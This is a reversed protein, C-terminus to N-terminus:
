PIINVKFFNNKNNSLLKPFISSVDNLSITHLWGDINIKGEELWKLTDVYDNLEFNCSSTIIKESAITLPNFKMEEDHIAINVYTGSKALLKTGLEFTESTGVTDFVSFPLTNSTNINIIELIKKFDLDKNNLTLDAGVNKSLDLSIESQDIVLVKGAGLIKSIQVISNGVPGSGIILVPMDKKINGKRSVHCGVALLDMMSAKDFSLNNSIEFATNAWAPVYEAYAGPFYDRDGWGQGHGIHITNPCLHDMENMCLDCKECVKSCIPAVRKGLMNKYKPNIVGVVEGAFEHGLVINPPNEIFQGLTHQGWPNEGLYYRLDSGCLGCSYVKILILEDDNYDLLPWMPIQKLSLKKPGELVVAKIKEPLIQNTYLQRKM